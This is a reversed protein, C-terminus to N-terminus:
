TVERSQSQRDAIRRSSPSRAAAMKKDGSMRLCSIKPVNRSPEGRARAESRSPIERHGGATARPLPPRYGPTAAIAPSRCIGPSFRVSHPRRHFPPAVSRRPRHGPLPLRRPTITQDPAMRLCRLSRPPQHHSPLRVFEPLDAGISGHRCRPCCPSASNPLASECATPPREAAQPKASWRISPGRQRGAM